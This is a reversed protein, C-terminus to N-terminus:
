IDENIDTNEIYLSKNFKNIILKITDEKGNESYIKFSNLGSNTKLELNNNQSTAVYNNNNIIKYSNSKYPLINVKVIKNNSNGNSSITINNIRPTEDQYYLNNYNSNTIFFYDATNRQVFLYINITFLILFLAFEKKTIKKLM